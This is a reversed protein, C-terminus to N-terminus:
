PRPASYTPELGRSIGGVQMRRDIQAVSAIAFIMTALVKMAFSASGCNLDSLVPDRKRNRDRNTAPRAPKTQASADLLMSRWDGTEARFLAPWDISEDRWVWYHGIQEPFIDKCADSALYWWGGAIASDWVLEPIEKGQLEGTLIGAEFLVKAIGDFARRMSDADASPADPAKWFEGDAKWLQAEIKKRHISSLSPM